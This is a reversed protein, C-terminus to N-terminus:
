LRRAVSEPVEVEMALVIQALGKGLPDFRPSAPGGGALAGPVLVNMAHLGPLAHRTIPGSPAACLLHALQQRVREVTVRNWLLPWWQPRRAVLGINALDGKDGSRGHALRILPVRELAEGPPDVWAPPEPLPAAPAPDSQGGPVAVDTSLGNMHVQPVLRSKDILFAFPKVLPSPTPRGGAPMTTGPAWSTGAPAIERAFLALAKPDPHDVVVRLM